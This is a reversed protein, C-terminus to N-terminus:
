REWQFYGTQPYVNKQSLALSTSKPVSCAGTGAGELPFPPAVM